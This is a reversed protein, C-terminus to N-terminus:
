RSTASRRRRETSAPIYVTKAPGQAHEALDKIACRAYVSDLHDYGSAQYVWAEHEAPYISLLERVFHELHGKNGDYTGTSDFGLFGVVGLQWILSGMRPDLTKAVGRLYLRTAEHEQMGLAPDVLLDAFLCDAASIGPLVIVDHGREQALRAAEAPPGSFVTPHGYFLGCVIEHKELLGLMEDVMARYTAERPLDNSYHRYLDVHAKCNQKVWGAVQHSSLVTAVVDAAKLWEVTELTMHRLGTIGSGAVVFTSKKRM